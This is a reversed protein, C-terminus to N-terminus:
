LFTQTLTVTSNKLLMPKPFSIAPYLTVWQDASDMQKLTQEGAIHEFTAGYEQDLTLCQCLVFINTHKTEAQTINMHDCPMIIDCGYIIDHLFPMSWISHTTGAGRCHVQATHQQIQM